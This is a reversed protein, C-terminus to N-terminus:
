AFRGSSRLAVTVARIKERIEAESLHGPERWRSCIKHETNLGHVRFEVTVGKCEPCPDHDSVGGGQVRGATDDVRVRGRAGRM